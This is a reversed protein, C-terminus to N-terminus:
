GRDGGSPDGSRLADDLDDDDADAPVAHDPGHGFTEAEWVLRASRAWGERTELPLDVWPTVLDATLDGGHAAAWAILLDRFVSGAYHPDIPAPRSGPEGSSGRILGLWVLAWRATGDGTVEIALGGEHPVVNITDGPAARRRLEAVERETVPRYKPPPRYDDTM